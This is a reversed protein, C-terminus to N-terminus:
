GSAEGPRVPSASLNHTSSERCLPTAGDLKKLADVGHQHDNLRTINVHNEGIEAVVTGACAIGGRDDKRGRGSGADCLAPFLPHLVGPRIRGLMVANCCRKTIQTCLVLVQNRSKPIGGRVADVVEARPHGYANNTGVSIVAYDAHIARKSLWDLDEQVTSGGDAAMGGRLSRAAHGPSIVGGHHPVALIDCAIPQGNLREHLRRWAIM